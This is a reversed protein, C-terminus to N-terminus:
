SIYLEYWINIIAIYMYIEINMKKKFKESVYLWSLKLVKVTYCVIWFTEHGAHFTSSYKQTLKHLYACLSEIEVNMETTEVM